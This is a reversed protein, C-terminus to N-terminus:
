APRVVETATKLEGKDIAINLETLPFIRKEAAKIEQGLPAM